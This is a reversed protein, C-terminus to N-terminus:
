INLQNKIKTRTRSLVSKITGTPVNLAKSIEKVTMRDQYYMLCIEKKQSPLGDFLKLIQKYTMRDFVENGSSSTNEYVPTVDAKLEL